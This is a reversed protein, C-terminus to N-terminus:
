LDKCGLELCMGGTLQPGPWGDGACPAAAWGWPSEGVGPAKQDERRPNESSDMHAAPSSIQCTHESKFGRQGCTSIGQPLGSHWM